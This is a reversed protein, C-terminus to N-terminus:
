HSEVAHAQAKVEPQDIKSMAQLHYIEGYKKQLYNFYPAISM